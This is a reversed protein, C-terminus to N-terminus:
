LNEVYMCRVQIKKLLKLDPNGYALAFIPESGAARKLQNLWNLAVQSNEDQQYQVVEDIFAADIVWNRPAPPTSFIKEGIVGTPALDAEFTNKLLKGGYEYVPKGTIIIQNAANANPLPILLFVALLLLLKKM